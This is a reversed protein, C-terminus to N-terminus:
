VVGPAMVPSRGEPGDLVHLDNCGIVGSLLGLLLEAGGPFVDPPVNDGVAVVLSHQVLHLRVNEAERCSLGVVGGLDNGRHLGADLADDAVLREDRGQFFSVSDEFGTRIPLHGEGIARFKTPVLIVDPYAVNNAVARDAIHRTNKRKRDGIEDVVAAVPVVGRKMQDSIRLRDPHAPKQAVHAM